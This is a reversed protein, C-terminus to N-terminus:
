HQFVLYKRAMARVRETEKELQRQYAYKWSISIFPERMPGGFMKQREIEVAREAEELGAPCPDVIAKGSLINWLVWVIAIPILVPIMIAAITTPIHDSGAYKSVMVSIGLCFIVAVVFFDIWFVSM